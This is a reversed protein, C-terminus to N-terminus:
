RQITTVEFGTLTFYRYLGPCVKSFPWIEYNGLVVCMDREVNNSPEVAFKERAAFFGRDEGGCKVQTQDVEHGTSWKLSLWGVRQDINDVPDSGDLHEM